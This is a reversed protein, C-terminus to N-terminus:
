KENNLLEAMTIMGMTHKIIIDKLEEPLVTSYICFKETALVDGSKAISELSELKTKTELM